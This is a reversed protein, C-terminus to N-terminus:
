LLDQLYEYGDGFTQQKGSKTILTTNGNKDINIQEIENVLMKGSGGNVLSWKVVGSKLVSILRSQSSFGNRYYEADEKSYGILEQYKNFLMLSKAIATKPKNGICSEAMKKIDEKFTYRTIKKEM